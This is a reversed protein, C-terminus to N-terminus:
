IFGIVASFGLISSLVDILNLAICIQGCFESENFLDCLSM